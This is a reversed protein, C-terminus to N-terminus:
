VPMLAEVDLVPALEADVDADTDPDLLGVYADELPELELAVAIPVPTQTPTPMPM